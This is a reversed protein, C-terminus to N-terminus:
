QEGKTSANDALTNIAKAFQEAEITKLILKKATAEADEDLKAILSHLHGIARIRMERPAEAFHWEDVDEEPSNQDEFTKRLGIGWKGNIKGYGIEQVESLPGDEWTSFVFWSSIGLNLKKLAANLHDVAVNLRDSASNLSGATKSLKQFGAEVRQAPSGQPVSM